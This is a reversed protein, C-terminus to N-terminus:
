LHSVAPSKKSECCNQKKKKKRLQPKNYSFLSLSFCEAHLYVQWLQLTIHLICLWCGCQRSQGWASYLIFHPTNWVTPISQSTRLSKGPLHFSGWFMWQANKGWEPSTIKLSYSSKKEQLKPTATPIKVGMLVKLEM